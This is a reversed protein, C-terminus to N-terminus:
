FDVITICMILVAYLFYIVFLFFFAKTRQFLTMQYHLLGHEQQMKLLVGPFMQFVRSTNSVDCSSLM